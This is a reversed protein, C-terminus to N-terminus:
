EDQQQQQQLLSAQLSGFCDPCEPASSTSFIRVLHLSSAAVWLSLLLYKTLSLATDRAQQNSDRPTACTNGNHAPAVIHFPLVCTASAALLLLGRWNVTHLIFALTACHKLYLVYVSRCPVSQHQVSFQM